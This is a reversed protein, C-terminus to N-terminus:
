RSVEKSNNMSVEQSNLDSVTFNLTREGTLSEVKSTLIPTTQKTTYSVVRGKFISLLHAGATNGSALGSVSLLKESATTM